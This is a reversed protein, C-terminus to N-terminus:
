GSEKVAADRVILEDVSIEFVECLTDITDLTIGKANGRAIRHATPYSLGSERMFRTVSWGREELLEPVTLRVTGNGMVNEM